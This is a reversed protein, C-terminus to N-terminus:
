LWGGFFRRLDKSEAKSESASERKGSAPALNVSESGQNRENRKGVANGHHQTSDEALLETWSLCVARSPRGM